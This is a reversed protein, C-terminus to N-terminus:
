PSTEHELWGADVGPASDHVVFEEEVGLVRYGGAALAALLAALRQRASNRGVAHCRQTVFREQQGDERVRRANRSLHACHAVVLSALPAVDAAPDLVLKVHHEFYRGPHGGAEADSSPVDENWPAAEVKVRSVAFGATVLQLCLGDAAALEDPLRGRGRRSVMPQSPTRGRELVIHHFALGHHKAWARLAGFTDSNAVRVTVHTEFEGAFEV